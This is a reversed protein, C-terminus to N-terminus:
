IQMIDKEKKALLEDVKKIFSDTLKQIEESGKHYDDESIESDKELKKMSDMGDRRVNRVNIKASEAYKAAMKVLEKRREETLDPMPLRIVQGETVPNIGLQSDIIAREVDKVMGRDWIQLSLMRAEPVSITAVQNLPMKSGYAEVVIHDLMASNARGTRISAFDRKLAELAKEMKSEINKQLDNM